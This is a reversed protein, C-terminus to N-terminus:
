APTVRMSMDVAQPSHTLLGVSIFDVGTEAYARVNELRIGGSCELPIRRELGACREVAHRVEEPSMNDLLLAEAGHALADELEAMTRVEVEVPQSGRRNRVARELAPVIGGALAIHNNKILVGDSLDLRHNQGGGCRVAYKDIVRLGPATKRTDLIRAKTGSVAEVFRRTLTTIGSMRQLFNLIVRECTLMVRADHRRVPVWQGKHLRVGDFIEPHTTVEYHATVAGDLAAYVDLIRAVCGIGALICEQKALVTASARQNADICAYSTADRTARDELLANELIATIRRSNWDM